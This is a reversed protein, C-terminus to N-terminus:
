EEARERECMVVYMWGRIMYTQEKFFHKLFVFSDNGYIIPKALLIDIRSDQTGLSLKVKKASSMEAKNEAWKQKDSERQKRTEFDWQWCIPDDGGM